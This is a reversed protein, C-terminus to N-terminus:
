FVSELQHGDSLLFPFIFGFHKLSSVTVRDNGFLYFRLSYLLSRITKLALMSFYGISHLISIALSSFNYFHLHLVYLVDYETHTSRIDQTFNFPWGIKYHSNKSAIKGQLLHFTETNKRSACHLFPKAREIWKIQCIIKTEKVYQPQLLTSLVPFHLMSNMM